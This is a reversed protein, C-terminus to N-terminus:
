VWDPREGAVSPEAVRGATGGEDGRTDGATGGAHSLGGAGRQRRPPGCGARAGRCRARDSGSSTRGHRKSGAGTV